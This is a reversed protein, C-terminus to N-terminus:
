ALPYPLTNVSGHRSKLCAAVGRKASQLEGILFRDARVEDLRQPRRPLQRAQLYFRVASRKHHDGGFAVDQSRQSGRVEGQNLRPM